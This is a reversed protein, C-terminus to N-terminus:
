FHDNPEEWKKNIISVPVLLNWRKIYHYKEQKIKEAYHKGRPINKELKKLNKETVAFLEQHSELFFGVKAVTTSNELLIAYKIVLDLDLVPVHEASRWIEEWGGSLEPRDLIDVFARELTCVKINVGMRDQTKVGLMEQNKRILAKPLAVRQYSNNQFEFPKVAAHSYYYFKFYTSYAVGYFDLATHYALVADPATKGAILYPDVVKFLDNAYLGRRIHFIHNKKTHYALLERITHPNTIKRSRLFIVWEDHTFIPHHTFFDKLDM